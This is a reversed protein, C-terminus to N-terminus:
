PFVATLAEAFAEGRRESRAAAQNVVYGGIAIL